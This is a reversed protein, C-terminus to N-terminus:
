RGGQGDMSLDHVWVTSRAADGSTAGQQGGLHIQYPRESVVRLGMNELSPLLDSLPIPSDAHYIKFNVNAKDDEPRRYLSMAIPEGHAFTEIRAIDQAAIEPSFDEKYSTPFADCYCQFLSHHCEVDFQAGIEVNLQDRWSRASIAIQSQIQAADYDPINGPTTEIIFHLRALPSDGM